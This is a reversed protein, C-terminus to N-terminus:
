DLCPLGIYEHLLQVQKITFIRQSDSYGTERLAYYLAQDGKIWRSLRNLAASASHLDPSLMWAVESKSMSRIQKM